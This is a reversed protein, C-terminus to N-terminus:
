RFDPINFTMVAGYFKIANYIDVSDLSLKGIGFSNAVEEDNILCDEIMQSLIDARNGYYGEKVYNDLIDRHCVAYLVVQCNKINQRLNPLRVDYYIFSDTEEITDDIFLHSKVHKNFLKQKDGISMNGADDSLLEIIENSKYLADHIKQKYIGRAATSKKIKAM